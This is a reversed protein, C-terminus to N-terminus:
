LGDENWFDHFNFWNYPYERCLAELWAAYAEVAARISREREAADAPRASFDALPAFRVDYRRGGAYLGAMSFVPRRLLAAMRFPGDAFRATRGLFPLEVVGGRESPEGALTRDGLTGAVGGADLWDRLALMSGPRGLAIVQPRIDADAIADLVENIRRANDPYMLMAVRWHRGGPMRGTAGIAEFSGVHAGVMFAGHGAALLAEVPATGAPRLDFRHAQGRLFYVRDLVTSAFAHILRYGDRWHPTRGLVRALYRRANRRQVPSFLLFYLTIPHLVVRAARRGCALAIWCMVRLALLNSREPTRAWDPAADAARQPANNPMAGARGPRAEGGPAGAEAPLRSM